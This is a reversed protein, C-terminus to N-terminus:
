GARGSCKEANEPLEGQFFDPPVALRRHVFLTASYRGSIEPARKREDKGQKGGGAVEEDVELVRLRPQCRTCYNPELKKGLSSSAM